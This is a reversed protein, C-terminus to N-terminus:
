TKGSSLKLMEDKTEVYRYGRDLLVQKLNKGDTRKGGEAELLLHRSGGGFVIDIDEYVMQEMIENENDRNDVHSAFAAPTAHTIRSTAVLGTAKGELRSDELITALPTYNCNSFFYVDM